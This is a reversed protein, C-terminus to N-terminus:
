RCGWYREGHSGRTTRKWSMRELIASIRRQDATGVRSTEISLGDRAVDLITTRSQGALYGAVAQEWADAEYRAEQQPAIHQAEFTQDPWWKKGARFLALAEAFLQDRDRTLADTDITGVKVPWFRRGGTEDRLYAEKNTTGIFVCQRPEFVEKRGYSPRYREVPRTIFAKLAAAETKDLASMEAVEILWKGNLHQAVDKGANRIDPLNDSFWQGGLIACATSKRSGQAGELILMYDCKCGPEYVRAVMAILFMRGIGAAYASAEVGLYTTLWTDLRKVGDWCQAELYNRVPHYRRETARLDVAQHTVDKSLREIAALQLWEQLATVDADAVPKPESSIPDHEIFLSPVPALLMPARMMEDYGFLHELRPDERLPLMVNALNGRTEGQDTRQLEDIWAPRAGYSKRAPQSPEVKVTSRDFVATSAALTKLRAVTGGAAIWDSVDGKSPLDPFQVIKVSAASGTLGTLSMAVMIAHDAGAEDNDPLIVIDRLRFYPAFEAPWKGAGGANCTAVLGLAILADADKEGEVIFVPDGPFADRLDPLRYPVREVGKVKWVWGGAGDPCRQRFDKPEFRVVQYLLTGDAAQYDYTAVIKAKAKRPEIPAGQSRLWELAAPKELRGYARLLDLVGGHEGTEQNFWVGRKSGGIEVSLSGHTGFRLNIKSSLDENVVGCFQRAAAEVFPSFVDAGNPPMANM